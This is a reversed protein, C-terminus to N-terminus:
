RVEEVIRIVRWGLSKLLDTKKQDLRRQQISHHCPGDCEIAIKGVIHAFDVKYNTPYSPKIPKISIAHERIWGHPILIKELEAVFKTPPLGNGGKFTQGHALMRHRYIPRAWLQKRALSLRRRTQTSVKKNQGLVSYRFRLAETMNQIHKADLRRGTMTQSIKQRQALSIKKGKNWPIRM